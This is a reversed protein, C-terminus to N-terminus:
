ALPHLSHPAPPAHGTPVSLLLAPLAMTVMAHRFHGTELITLRCGSVSRFVIWVQRWFHCDFLLSAAPPQTPCTACARYACVAAVCASDHEAAAHLSVARTGTETLWCKSVYGFIVV